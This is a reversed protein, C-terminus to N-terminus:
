EMSQDLAWSLRLYMAHSWLLPLAPEGWRNIWYPRHAPDLLHDDVQEPLEGEATACGAAWARLDEARERNGRALHALGLFCSLLPWQGGGYFKDARFRHVGGGVCLDDEIKDITARAIGSTPDIIGLPAILSALSADVEASGIWKVLHGPETGATAIRRRIAEVAEAAKREDGASLLGVGLVAELGASICGLTSVHQAELHEEWWDYCPRDWCAALYRVTLLISESWQGLDLGHRGAHAVVAWLWTGYGDLQFNEWGDNRISGDFGFRTPPMAGADPEGGADTEVTVRILLAAHDRLTRDCWDFFRSASEPRGVVSMADAIFAGDRLWCYGRYASFTPSAHYSGNSNQFTEIVEVSRGILDTTSGPRPKVMM